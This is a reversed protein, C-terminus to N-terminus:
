VSFLAFEPACKVLKEALSEEPFESETFRIVMFEDSLLKSSWTGRLLWPHVAVPALGIGRSKSPPTITVPSFLIHGLVQADKAAVLSVIAKGNTRLADVLKSEADSPFTAKLIERVQDVDKTEENRIELDMNM